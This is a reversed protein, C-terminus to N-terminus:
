RITIHIHQIIRHLANAHLTLKLRRTMEPEYEKWINFGSDSALSVSIRVFTNLTGQSEHQHYTNGLVNTTVTGFLEGANFTNKGHDDEAIFIRTMAYAVRSHMAHSPGLRHYQPNQHFLTPYFWTMFFDDSLEDTMDIGFRRAIGKMGPGYPSHPDVATSIASDAAAVIYTMPHTFDCAALKAKQRGTLPRLPVGALPRYELAACSNPKPADPPQSATAAQAPQPEAQALACLPTAILAVAFTAARLLKTTRSRM